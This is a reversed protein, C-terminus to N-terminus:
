QLTLEDRVEQAISRRARGPERNGCILHFPVLTECAPIPGAVQMMARGGCYAPYDTRNRTAVMAGREDFYRRDYRHIDGEFDFWRFAGCTGTEGVECSVTREGQGHRVANEFITVNEDFSPCGGECDLPEFCVCRRSTACLLTRGDGLTELRADPVIESPEVYRARGSAVPM